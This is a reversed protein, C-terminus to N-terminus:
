SFIHSVALRRLLFYVRRRNYRNDKVLPLQCSLFEVDVNVSEKDSVSHWAELFVRKQQNMVGKELIKVDAKAVDHGTGEAHDKIASTIKRRYAARHESKM